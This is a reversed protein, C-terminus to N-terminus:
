VDKNFCYYNAFPLKKFKTLVRTVINFQTEYKQLEIGLIIM